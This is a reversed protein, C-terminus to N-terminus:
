GKLEGKPWKVYKPHVHEIELSGIFPLKDSHMERALTSVKPVYKPLTELILLCGKGSEMKGSKPPWFYHTALRPLVDICGTMRRRLAEKGIREAEVATNCNM